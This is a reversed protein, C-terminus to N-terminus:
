PFSLRKIDWFSLAWVFHEVFFSVSVRAKRQGEKWRLRIIFQSLMKSLIREMFEAINSVVAVTSFRQIPENREEEFNGDCQTEANCSRVRNDRPVMYGDKNVWFCNGFKDWSATWEQNPLTWSVENTELNLWFPRGESDFMQKCGSVYCSTDFRRPLSETISGRELDLDEANSVHTSRQGTPSCSPSYSYNHTSYHTSCQTSSDAAGRPTSPSSTQFAGAGVSVSCASTSMSCYGDRVTNDHLLHETHRLSYLGDKRVDVIHRSNQILGECSSSSPSPASGLAPTAM